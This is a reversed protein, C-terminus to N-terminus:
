HRLLSVGVAVLTTVSCLVMVLDPMIRHTRRWTGFFRGGLLLAIASSGITALLNGQAIRYACVLLLSGAVSGAILSATSKAKLYGIVGGAITVVGYVMVMTAALGM